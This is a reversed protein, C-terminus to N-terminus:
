CRGPKAPGSYAAGIRSGARSRARTPRTAKWRECSITTPPAIPTPRCSCGAAIATSRWADRVHGGSARRRPASRQRCARSAAHRQRSANAWLHKATRLVGARRSQRVSGARGGGMAALTPGQAVFLSLVDFPDHAGVSALDDAVGPRQWAARSATWCAAELPANSGILLVDGDGVLWLTGDPFVSLFTAVISQLDRTSIDYTHAWQCLVGGPALRDQARRRLVRAHVAVRHRGDLSEVAGLRDRRISRDTLLLHTRGDGLILRTRPDDLPAITRPTSSTAVGRRSGTFDRARRRTRDSADAGLRAHRRQRPRPDRRAEPDPHLLLPVHALLRQTLMDGSNSADVKGDIALSTTGGARRRRGHRERRRPLLAARRRTLATESIRAQAAGGRVQLRREVAATSGM